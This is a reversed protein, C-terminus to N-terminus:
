ADTTGGVRPQMEALLAQYGEFEPGPRIVNRDDDFEVIGAGDMTPLHDQYLPVYVNKYESSTLNRPKKGVKNGAIQRALERLSIPEDAKSVERIVEQRFENRLYHCVDALPDSVLQEPEAPGGGFVRDTVSGL